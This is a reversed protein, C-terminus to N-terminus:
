STVSFLDINGQHVEICYYCSIWKGQWIVIAHRWDLDSPIEEPFYECIGVPEKVISSHVDYYGGFEYQSFVVETEEGHCEFISGFKESFKNETSDVHEWGDKILTKHLGEHDLMGLFLAFDGKVEKVFLYLESSEELNELDIKMFRFDNHDYWIVRMIECDISHGYESMTIPDSLTIVNGKKMSYLQALYPVTSTFAKPANSYDVIDVMKNQSASAFPRSKSPGRDFIMKLVDSIWKFFSVISHAFILFIIFVIIVGFVLSFGELDPQGKAIPYTYGKSVLTEEDILYDNKELPIFNKSANYYGYQRHSALYIIPLWVNERYIREPIYSPRTKPEEPFQNILDQFDKSKKFENEAAEKSFYRPPNAIQDRYADWASTKSDHRKAEAERAQKRHVNITSSKSGSSYNSFRSSSRSSFSSSRSRFSSSGRSSRKGWAYIDTHVFVFLFILFFVRLKM